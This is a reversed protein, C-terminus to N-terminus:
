GAQVGLIGGGDGAGPTPPLSILFTSSVRPQGSQGLMTCIEPTLGLSPPTLQATQGKAAPSPCHPKGISANPTIHTAKQSEHGRYCVSARGPPWGRVDKVLHLGEVLGQAKPVQQAAATIWVKEQVDDLALHTRGQAHQLSCLGPLNWLNEGCASHTPICLSCQTRSHQHCLCWPDRHPAVQRLNVSARCLAGKLRQLDSSEPSLREAAWM